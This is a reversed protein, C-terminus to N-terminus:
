LCTGTARTQVLARWGQGLGADGGVEQLACDLFHGDLVQAAGVLAPSLHGLGVDDVFALTAM